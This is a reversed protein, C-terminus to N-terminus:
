RRGPAPHPLATLSAAKTNVWDKPPRAKAPLDATKTDMLTRLEAEDKVLHMASINFAGCGRKYYLKREADPGHKGRGNADFIKQDDFAVTHFQAGNEASWAKKRALADAKVTIKGNKNDTMTKLEVGDEIKGARVRVVDAPENDRLHMTSVGKEKLMGALIPECRDESYQQVEKGVKRSTQKALISKQSPTPDPEKGSDSGGGSTFEGSHPDHNPNSKLWWSTASKEDLLAARAVEFDAQPLVWTCRCGPHEPLPPRESIEYVHGDRAGCEPCTREDEAALWEVREQGLDELASVAGEAHARIVESRAIREAQYPLLNMVEDQIRAALDPISAGHVVGELLLQRVALEYGAATSQAFVPIYSDLFEAAATDALSFSVGAGIADLVEQGGGQAAPHLWRVLAQQLADALDGPHALAWLDAPKADKTRITM